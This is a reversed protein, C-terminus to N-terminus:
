KSLLLVNNLFRTVIYLTTDHIYSYLDNLLILETVVSYFHKKEFRNSLDRYSPETIKIYFVASKTVM